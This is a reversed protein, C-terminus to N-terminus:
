MLESYGFTITAPKCLIIVYKYDFLGTSPSIASIDFTKAGNTTIQAIELGGARVESGLTSNALYVFTGLAFSTEFTSSFVLTLKGNVVSLSATGIAKYGGSGIFMGSRGDGASFTLINSNVGEVKAQIDVMGSGIGKVVGQDSVTAISTNQSMWEISRGNLLDGNINKVMSTLAVMENVQLTTQNGPSAIIVSAVQNADLVVNVEVQGQATKHSAQIIAQGGGLATILGQQNVSVVAPASSSWTIDVAQEIGYEDYYTAQISQAEGIKLAFQNQEIEIREGVIPDDVHDVGICASLAVWISIGYIIRNSSM